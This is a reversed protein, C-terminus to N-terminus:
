SLTLPFLPKGAEGSKGNVSSGQRIKPKDNGYSINVGFNFM